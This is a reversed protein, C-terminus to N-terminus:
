GLASVLRDNVSAIGNHSWLLPGPHVYNAVLRNPDEAFSMWMGAM